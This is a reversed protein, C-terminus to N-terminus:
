LSHTAIVRSPCNISMWRWPSTISTILPSSSHVCALDRPLLVQFLQRHLALRSVPQRTLGAAALVPRLLPWMPRRRFHAAVGIILRIARRTLLRNAGDFCYGFIPPPKQYQCQACHNNRLLVACRCSLGDVGRSRRPPLSHHPHLIRGPKHLQHRSRAHPTMANNLGSAGVPSARCAPSRAYSALM